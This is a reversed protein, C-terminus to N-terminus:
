KVGNLYNIIRQKEDSLANTAEKFNNETDIGIAETTEFCVMKDGRLKENEVMYKTTYIDVYDNPIYAQPYSQRPMNAKDNDDFFISKCYDDGDKVMWKFATLVDMPNAISLMSTADPFKKIKSIGADVIDPNRFPTTIRLHVWYEPVSGENEYFWNIAHLMFETDTSTDTSIEAPRLFPAEAGFSRAIEAYKESDTTVITRDINKSLNSVAITYAMLPYGDLMRINKDKIGKSGSRAPIIGFVQGKNIHNLIDKNM